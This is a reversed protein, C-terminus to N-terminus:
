KLTVIRFEKLNALFRVFSNKQLYDLSDVVFCQLNSKCRLKTKLLKLFVVFIIVTLKHNGHKSPRIWVRAEGILARTTYM